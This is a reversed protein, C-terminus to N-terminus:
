KLLKIFLLLNFFLLLWDLLHILLASSVNGKSSVMVNSADFYGKSNNAIMKFSETVNGLVDFIKQGTDGVQMNMDAIVSGPAM